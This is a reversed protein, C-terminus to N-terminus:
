ISEKPYGVLAIKTVTKRPRVEIPIRLANATSFVNIGMAEPRLSFITGQHARKFDNCLSSLKNHVSKQWYLCCRCQRASWRPHRSKMRAAFGDLDFRAIIFWHSRSFDLWDEICPARPPCEPTKGYNPCGLPHDPYPLNCWVRARHDVVLQGTVEITSINAATENGDTKLRTRSML